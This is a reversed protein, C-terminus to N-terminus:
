PCRPHDACDPCICGELYPNCIGDNTCKTTDNCYAAQHCDPCVCDDVIQNQFDFCIDDDTCGECLCQSQNPWTCPPFDVSPSITAIDVCQFPVSGGTSGAGSGGM